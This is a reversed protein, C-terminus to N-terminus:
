CKQHLLLDFELLLMTKTLAQVINRIKICPNIEGQGTFLRWEKGAVQCDIESCNRKLSHDLGCVTIGHGIMYYGRVSRMVSASKMRKM